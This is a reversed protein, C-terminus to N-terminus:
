RQRDDSSKQLQRFIVQLIDTGCVLLLYEFSKFALFNSNKCTVM